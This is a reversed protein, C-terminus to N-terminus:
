PSPSPSESSPLDVPLPEPPTVLRPDDAHVTPLESRLAPVGPSPTPSGESALLYPPAIRIDESAVYGEQGGSVVQVKSYGFSPRILKVLANRQLKQDAGSGQQPGYRYFATSDATVAYIKGTSAASLNDSKSTKCASFALAVVTCLAVAGSLRM